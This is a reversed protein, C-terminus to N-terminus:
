PNATAVPSPAFRLDRYTDVRAQDAVITRM